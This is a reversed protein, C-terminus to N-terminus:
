GSIKWTLGNKENRNKAQSYKVKSPKVAWLEVNPVRKIAGLVCKM